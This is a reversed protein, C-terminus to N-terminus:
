RVALESTCDNTDTYDKHTIFTTIEMSEPKLEIQYRNQQIGEFREHGSTARRDDPHFSTGTYHGSKGPAHGRMYTGELSQFLSQRFGNARSM